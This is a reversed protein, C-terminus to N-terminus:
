RKVSTLPLVVHDPLSVCGDHDMVLDELTHLLAKVPRTVSEGHVEPHAVIVMRIHDLLDQMPVIGERRHALALLDDEHRTTTM